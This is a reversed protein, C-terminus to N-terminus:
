RQDTPAVLCGIMAQVTKDVEQIIMEFQADPRRGKLSVNVDGIQFFRPVRLHVFEGFFFSGKPNNHGAALEVDRDFPPLRLTILFYDIVESAFDLENLDSLAPMM